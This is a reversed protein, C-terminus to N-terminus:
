VSGDICVDFIAQVSKHDGSRMLRKVGPIRALPAFQRQLQRTAASGLEGMDEELTPLIHEAFYRANVTKRGTTKRM